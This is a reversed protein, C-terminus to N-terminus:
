YAAPKFTVNVAAVMYSRASNTKLLVGNYTLLGGIAFYDTEIVDFGVGFSGGPRTRTGPTDLGAYKPDFTVHSLCAGLQVYARYDEPVPSLRAIGGFSLFQTRLVDDSAAYAIEVGLQMGITSEGHVNFAAYPGRWLERGQPGVGAMMGGGLCYRLRSLLGLGGEDQALAPDTALTMAVLAAAIAIGLRPRM